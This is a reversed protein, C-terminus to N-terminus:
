YLVNLITTTFYLTSIFSKPKLLSERKGPLSLLGKALELLFEQIKNIIALELESEHYHSHDKINLFELVYPNKIFDEPKSQLKSTKEKAERKVPKKDQSMLLREYYLSNIQRELTRTSWNQDVAENMYWLRANENEIRILSKYHTWTLERRLESIIGQTSIVPSKEQKTSFHRLSAGKKSEETLQHQPAAGISFLCYFQRMRKLNRIDFGKGLESCLRSSLNELLKAGYQARKEGKQEHEVILKGIHWSADIMATNVTRHVKCLANEIIDKISLYLSETSNIDQSQSQNKIKTM